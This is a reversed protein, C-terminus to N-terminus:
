RRAPSPEVCLTMSRRCRTRRGGIEVLVDEGSSPEQKSASEVGDETVTQALDKIEGKFQIEAWDGEALAREEEVPEVTAHSDLVRSLEAQYEDETLTVDPRAVKM